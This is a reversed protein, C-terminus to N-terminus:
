QRSRERMAVFTSAILAGLLDIERQVDARSAPKRAPVAVHKPTPKPPLVAPLPIEVTTGNAKPAAAKAKSKSRAARVHAPVKKGDARVYGAVHVGKGTAKTM